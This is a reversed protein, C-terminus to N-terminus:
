LGAGPAMEVTPQSAGRQGACAWPLRLSPVGSFIARRSAQAVQSHCPFLAPHELSETSAIVRVGQKLTCWWCLCRSSQGERGAMFYLTLPEGRWGHGSFPIGLFLWWNQKRLWKRLKTLLGLTLIWAWVIVFVNSYQKTWSVFDM